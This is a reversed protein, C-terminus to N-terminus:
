QNAFFLDRKMTYVVCQTNYYIGTGRLIMGIKEMVRRSAQNEPMAVATIQPLDLTGFGYNLLCLSGETAFGRGWKERMLRYGIEHEQTGPLPKLAFWGIFSRNEREEAIWYGTEGRSQRIRKALDRRAERRSQTKGFTIYRMVEPDSGLLHIDELDTRAPPRLRLRPTLLEPVM